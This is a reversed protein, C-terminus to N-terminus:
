FNFFDDLTTTETAKKTKTKKKSEIKPTEVKIEEVADAFNLNVNTDEEILDDMDNKLSVFPHQAIKYITNSHFQEYSLDGGFISLLEKDPSPKIKESCEYMEHLMSFTNFDHFKLVDHCACNLSCYCGTTQFVGNVKRIPIEYKKDIEKHCHMCNLTKNEIVHNKDSDISEYKGADQDFASPVVLDSSYEFNLSGSDQFFNNEVCSKNLFLILNSPLTSVTM